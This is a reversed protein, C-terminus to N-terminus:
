VMMAHIEELAIPEVTLVEALGAQRRNDRVEIRVATKDRASSYRATIRGAQQIEEETPSGIALTTPGPEDITTMLVGHAHQTTLFANEGEHRGVIVKTGSPLRLHRGVALLFARESTLAQAGGHDLFDRLRRSYSEDVLFCCGGAPQAYEIIGFREALAIQPKRSRGSIGYLKERDV